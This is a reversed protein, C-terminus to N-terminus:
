GHGSTQFSSVLLDTFTVTYYVKQDGGAKRVILKASPVHKGTACHLFLKSSAKDLRKTFHFDQMVVKGSGGGTGSGMSGGNTEGWSYSEIEISNPFASDKSEGEIGEFKLLIDGQAM